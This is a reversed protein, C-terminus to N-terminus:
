DFPLHAPFDPAHVMGPFFSAPLVSYIGNQRKQVSGRNQGLM